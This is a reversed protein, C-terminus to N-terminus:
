PKHQNGYVLMGYILKICALKALEMGGSAVLSAIANPADTAGNVLIVGLILM